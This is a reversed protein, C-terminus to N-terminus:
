VAVRVCDMSTPNAIDSDIFVRERELDLDFSLEGVPATNFLLSYTTPIKNKSTATRKHVPELKIVCTLASGIHHLPTPHNFVYVSQNRYLIQENSPVLFNPQSDM